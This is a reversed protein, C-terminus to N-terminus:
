RLLQIWVWWDSNRGGQGQVLYPFKKRSHGKYSFSEPVFKLNGDGHRHKPFWTVPLVTTVLTLLALASSSLMGYAIYLLEFSSSTVLCVYTFVPALTFMIIGLFLSKRPGLLPVM